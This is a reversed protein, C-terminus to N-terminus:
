VTPIWHCPKDASNLISDDPVERAFLTSICILLM